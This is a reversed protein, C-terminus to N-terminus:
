LKSYNFSLGAKALNQELKSNQGITIKIKDFEERLGRRVKADPKGKLQAFETVFIISKHVSLRENYVVIRYLRGTKVSFLYNNRLTTLFLIELRDM